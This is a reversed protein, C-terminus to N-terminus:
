LNSFHSYGKDEQFRKESARENIEGLSTIYIQLGDDTFLKVQSRSSAMVCITTFDKHGWQATPWPNIYQEV